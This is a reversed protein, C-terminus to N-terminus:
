ICHVLYIGLFDSTFAGCFVRNPTRANVAPVPRSTPPEVGTPLMFTFALRLRLPIAFRFSALSATRSYLSASIILRASALRLSGFRADGSM